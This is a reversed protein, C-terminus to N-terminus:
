RLLERLASPSFGMTRQMHRALHSQHAFGVKLAIQRITLEDGGLLSRARELRRRIVYQHPAVGRAERFLAKFHSVSLNAARALDDLSITEALHSEIYDFVQRLKRESMRKHPKIAAVAHSSHYCILRAACAIALSDFYLQGCPFGCEMEAKLAWGINELNADRIQFRNKIELGRANLGMEGAVRRLLFPAISMTLFTDQGKTEWVSPTASPIIHIDGHLSVGTYHTGARDCTIPTPPGCHISVRADEQAAVEFRGPPDTLLAVRVGNFKM